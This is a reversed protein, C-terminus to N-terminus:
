ENEKEKKLIYDIADCLKDELLKSYQPKGAVTHLSSCFIIDGIYQRIEKKTM